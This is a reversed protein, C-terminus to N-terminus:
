NHKEGRSSVGWLYLQRFYKQVNHVQDTAIWTRFKWVPTVGSRYVVGWKSFSSGFKGQSPGSNDYIVVGANPDNMYIGMAIADPGPGSAIIVSGVGGDSVNVKSHDVALPTLSDTRPDYKYYTTFEANLYATPAEISVAPFPPGEYVSEYMIVPWQRDVKDPGIWDLTIEKGIKANAYIIANSMGGSHGEPSWEIPVARSSQHNVASNEVYLTPSEHRAYAPVDPTGYKDGAEELAKGDDTYLAMQLQRGYDYDNIFQKGHWWWEWVAGGASKNSKVTVGGGSVSTLREGAARRYAFGSVLKRSTKDYLGSVATIGPYGELNSWVFGSLLQQEGGQIGLQSLPLMNSLPKGDIDRSSSSVYYLAQTEGNTAPAQMTSTVLYASEHKVRWVTDLKIGVLAPSDSVAYGPVSLLLFCIIVFALKKM